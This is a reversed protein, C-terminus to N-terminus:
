PFGPRGANAPQNPTHSSRSPGTSTDLPAERARCRDLSASIKGERSIAIEAKPCKPSSPDPLRAADPLTGAAQAAGEGEGRGGTGTRQARSHEFTSVEVPRIDGAGWLRRKGLTNNFYPAKAPAPMAESARRQSSARQPSPSKTTDPTTQEGPKSWSQRAPIPAIQKPTRGLHSHFSAREAIGTPRPPAPRSQAPFPYLLM